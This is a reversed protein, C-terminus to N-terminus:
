LLKILEEQLDVTKNRAYWTHLQVKFNEPTTEPNKKYALVQQQISDPRPGWKWIPKDNQVGVVVPIARAGNSLYRDMLEPNEDRLVLRMVVNTNLAALRAFVPLNQAADGCWAETICLWVQPESIQKVNEILNESLAATKYIREMRQLNLRTYEILEPSQNEGTTREESLLDRILDLYVDYTMGKRVYADYSFLKTTM